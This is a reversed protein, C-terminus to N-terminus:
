RLGILAFCISVEQVQVHQLPQKGPLWYICLRNMFLGSTSISGCVCVFSRRCVPIHTPPGPHTEVICSCQIILTMLTKLLFLLPTFSAPLLGIILNLLGCHLVATLLLTQDLSPSSSQLSPTIYLSECQSKVQEATRWVAM